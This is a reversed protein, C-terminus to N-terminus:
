YIPWSFIFVSTLRSKLRVNDYGRFAVECRNLCLSAQLLPQFHKGAKRTSSITKRFGLLHLYANFRTQRFPSSTSIALCALCQKVEQLVTPKNSQEISQAIANSSKPVAPLIIGYLNILIKYSYCPLSATSMYRIKPLPQCTAWIINGWILRHWNFTMERSTTVWLFSHLQAAPRLLLSIGLM